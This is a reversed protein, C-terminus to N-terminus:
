SLANISKTDYDFIITCQLRSKFRISQQSERLVNRSKGSKVLGSRMFMVSSIKDRLCEDALAMGHLASIRACRTM